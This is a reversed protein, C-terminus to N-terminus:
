RVPPAADRDLSLEHIARRVDRARPLGSTSELRRAAARYDCGRPGAGTRRDHIGRAGARHWPDGRRRSGIGRRRRPISGTWRDILVAAAGSPGLLGLTDGDVTGVANFRIRPRPASSWLRVSGDSTIVGSDLTVGDGLRIWYRDTEPVFALEVAVARELAADRATAILNDLRRTARTLEDDPAIRAFAPVVAAATIGLIALVVVIEVLTFGRSM